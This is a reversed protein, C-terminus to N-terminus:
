LAPLFNFAPNNELVIDWHRQLAQELVQFAINVFLRWGTQSLELHKGSFDSFKCVMEKIEKAKITQGVKQQDAEYFEFYFSVTTTVFHSFTLASRTNWWRRPRSATRCGATETRRCCPPCRPSGPRIRLCHPCGTWRPRSRWRGTCRGRRREGRCRSSPDPRGPWGSGEAATWETWTWCGWGASSSGSVGLRAHRCRFRPFPRLEGSEVTRKLCM